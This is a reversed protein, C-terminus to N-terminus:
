HLLKHTKAEARKVKKCDFNYQGQHIYQKDFVEFGTSYNM